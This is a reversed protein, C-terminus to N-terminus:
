IRYPNVLVNTDECVGPPIFNKMLIGQLTTLSMKGPGDLMYNLIKCIEVGKWSILVNDAGPAKNGPIFRNTWLFKKLTSETVNYEPTHKTIVGVDEWFQALTYRKDSMRKIITSQNLHENETFTFLDDYEESGRSFILDRVYDIMFPKLAKSIRSQIEEPSELLRYMEIQDFYETTQRGRECNEGLAYRLEETAFKGKPDDEGPIFSFDSESEYTQKYWKMECNDSLDMDNFIGVDFLFDRLSYNRRKEMRQMIDAMTLNEHRHTPNMNTAYEEPTLSTLYAIYCKLPERFRNVYRRFRFVRIAMARTTFTNFVGYGNVLMARSAQACILVRFFVLVSNTRSTAARRSCGHHVPDGQVLTRPRQDDRPRVADGVAECEFDEVRVPRPRRRREHRRPRRRRAQVDCLLPAAPRRRGAQAVVVRRAVGSM